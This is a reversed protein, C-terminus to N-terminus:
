APEDDQDMRTLDILVQRCEECVGVDANWLHTHGEQADTSHMHTNDVADGATRESGTPDADDRDAPSQDPSHTEPQPQLVEILDAHPGGLAVDTWSDILPETGAGSAFSRDRPRQRNRWRILRLRRRTQAAALAPLFEFLFELPKESYFILREGDLDLEFDAGDWLNAEVDAAPWQWTEGDAVVAVSRGDLRLEANLQNVRDGLHLHGRNEYM